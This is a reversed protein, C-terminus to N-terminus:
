RDARRTARETGAVARANGAHSRLGEFIIRVRDTILLDDAIAAIEEAERWATELLRLEGELAAREAEEHAAMELALRIPHPLRALTTFGWGQSRARFEAAAIYREPSGAEELERVARQVLSRSAGYVNVKPLILGLAHVAEEGTLVAMGAKHTVELRWGEDGEPRLKHAGIQMPDIELPRGAPGVVRLPARAKQYVVNGLNWLHLPLMGASLGILGTVGFVAGTVLTAGIATNVIARRQRRGFQDGYRWAAFEPRLPRGIRVLDLGDALRALGINETSVRTRTERFARECAEIAEWRADLPSLNWRECVRCVVWLRGKAEDFALRRGVPFEEISENTGLQASCYVCNHFM